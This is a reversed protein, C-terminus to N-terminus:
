IKSEDLEGTITGDVTYDELARIQDAYTSWNTASKYEDVRSRPVYVYGDKDGNPNYTSHSTGTFHYCTSFATGGLSCVAADQRIIVAKLSFCNNFPNTSISVARTDIKQLQNCGDFAYNNLQYAIPINVDTLQWCGSFVYTNVM